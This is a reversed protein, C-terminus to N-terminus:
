ISCSYVSKSICKDRSASIDDHFLKKHRWWWKRITTLQCHRGERNGYYQYRM